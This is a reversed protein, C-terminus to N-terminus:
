YAAIRIVRTTCEADRRAIAYQLERIIRDLSDDFWDSFSFGGFNGRALELTPKVFEDVTAQLSRRTDVQGELGRYRLDKLLDEHLSGSDGYFDSTNKTVLITPEDPNAVERM